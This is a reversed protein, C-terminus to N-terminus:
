VMKKKRRVPSEALLFLTSLPPLNVRGEVTSNARGKGGFETADTNFIERLKGSYKLRYDVYHKLSFNHICVLNEGGSKRIYSLVGSARDEPDIWTFGSWDFDREWLAAHELYFHNLARVMTHLSSGLRDWRLKDRIDWPAVEGLEAGMFFLKKGPHGIMYSYLLRLHALKEWESTAPLMEWVDRNQLAFEDHSLSLAYRENFAYTMGFTLKEHNKEREEPATNFYALTDSVWGLNWKLDFGLGGQELPHTVGPFQSADEAILLAEPCKKKLTANLERLFAVGEERVEEWGHRKKAFDRYLISTVSDVRLGDVGCIELWFLASGMLFARVQPSKYDFLHTGWLSKEGSEFLPEGDFLTLAYDDEPFHSPVWDIILGIGANHLIEVFCIFDALTGYRSTVSYYGTVQYGWSQDLPHENLPMVEVHTFGMEWCYPALEEAIKEYTLFGGRDCRKWTGLHLEYINMPRAEWDGRELPKHPAPLPALLSAQGPRLASALAFPDARRQKKGKSDVVALQYSQGASAELIFGSWIGAEGQVLPSEKWANFEGCVFVERAHPAWVRFIAGGEVLRGGMKEYIREEDLM